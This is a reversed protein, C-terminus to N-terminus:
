LRKTSCEMKHLRQIQALNELGVGCCGGWMSREWNSCKQGQSHIPGPFCWLPGPWFRGLQEVLSNVSGPSWDWGCNFGVAEAGAEEAWSVWERPSYGGLTEMSIKESETQCDPNSVPDLLDISSQCKTQIPWDPCHRFCGSLILPIEPTPRIWKAWDVVHPHSWTELLIGDARALLNQLLLPAPSQPPFSGPEVPGLAVVVIAGPVAERALEIGRTALNWAEVQETHSGFALNPLLTFTNTRHIQAGAAAWQAHVARVLDPHTRNWLHSPGHHSPSWGMRLLETGMPGDGFWPGPSNWLARLPNPPNM